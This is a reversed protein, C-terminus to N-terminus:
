KKVGAGGKTSEARTPLGKEVVLDMAREIPIRVAGANRDVWAYGQLMEAERAHLQGIDAHPEVQLRPAPPLPRDQAFPSAPPGLSQTKSFYRFVGVMLVALFVLTAVIVGGFILLSRINADRLEHRVPSIGPPRPPPKTVM